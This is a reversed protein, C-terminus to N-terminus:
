RLTRNKRCVVSLRREDVGNCRSPNGKRDRSCTPQTLKVLTSAAFYIRLLFLLDDSVIHNLRERSVFVRRCVVLNWALCKGDAFSLLEFPSTAAVIDMVAVRHRPLQHLFFFVSVTSGHYDFMIIFCSSQYTFLIEPTVGLKTMLQWLGIRKESLYVVFLCSSTRPKGAKFKANSNRFAM